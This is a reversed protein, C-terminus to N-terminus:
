LFPADIPEPAVIRAFTVTPSFAITPAPLTTVLSTGAFVMTAPFGALASRLISVTKDSAVFHTPILRNRKQIQYRRVLFQAVLEQLDHRISKICGAEDASRHNLAEFLIKRLVAVRSMTHTDTAPRICESKGQDGSAYAGSVGD